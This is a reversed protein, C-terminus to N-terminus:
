IAHKLAPEAWRSAPPGEPISEAEERSASRRYCRTVMARASLRLSRSVLGSKDMKTKFFTYRELYDQILMQKGQSLLM